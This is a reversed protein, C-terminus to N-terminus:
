EQTFITVYLGAATKKSELEDQYTTGFAAFIAATDLEILDAWDYTYETDPDGPDIPTKDTSFYLKCFGWAEDEINDYVVPQEAVIAVDNSVACSVPGTKTIVDSNDEFEEVLAYADEYISTPRWGQLVPLTGSYSAAGERTVVGIQSNDNDVYSKYNYNKEHSYTYSYSSTDTPPIGLYDNLVSDEYYSIQGTSYYYCPRRESLGDTSLSGVFVSGLIETYNSVTVNYEFPSEGGYNYPWTSFTNNYFYRWTTEEFSAEFTDGTDGLELSESDDFNDSQTCIQTVRCLPDFTPVNDIHLNGPELDCTGIEVRSADTKGTYGLRNLTTHINYYTDPQSLGGISLLEDNIYDWVIADDTYDPGIRLVICAMCSRPNSQFGIVKPSSQDFGEFKVIVNAGNDFAAANCTMYNIPVDTLVSAQNIDLGQIRSTLCDLTVTCTNATPDLDSITGYRYTPRWKQIAPMAALNRMADAVNMTLFPVAIGDRASNYVANGDYGPQINLGNRRDTGPAITGVGGTLGTTLDACWAQTQYDQNAADEVVDIRKQIAVKRAKLAALVMPDPDEKAEETDIDSDVKSLIANLRNLETDAVSTDHVVEITYLGEGDDSIIQAKGM